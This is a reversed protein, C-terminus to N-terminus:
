EGDRLCEEVYGTLFVGVQSQRRALGHESRPANVARELARGRSVWDSLTVVSRRSSDREAILALAELLYSKDM